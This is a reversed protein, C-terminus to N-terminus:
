SFAPNVYLIVGKPFLRTLFDGDLRGDFEPNILCGDQLKFHYEGLGLTECILKLLNHPSQASDESLVKKKKVEAICKKYEESALEKFWPQQVLLLRTRQRNGRSTIPAHVQHKMAISELYRNSYRIYNVEEKRQSDANPSPYFKASAM